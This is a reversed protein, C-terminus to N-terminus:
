SFNVSNGIFSAVVADVDALYGDLPKDNVIVVDGPHHVIGFESAHTDVASNDRVIQIIHGGISRIMAAENEFRVDDFVVNDASVLGIRHKAIMLWINDHVMERGWDTGLTQLIHRTSKNLGPIISKKDLIFKKTEEASFGLELLLLLVINKMPDAFSLRSFNRDALHKAATTKGSEKRGAFGIITKGM